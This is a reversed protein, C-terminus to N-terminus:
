DEEGNVKAEWCQRMNEEAQAFAEEGTTPRDEEELSRREEELIKELHPPLPANDEEEPEDPKQYPVTLARERARRHREEISEQELRRAQELTVTIRPQGPRKKRPRSEPPTPNPKM